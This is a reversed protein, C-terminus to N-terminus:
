AAQRGETATAFAINQYHMLGDVKEKAIGQKAVLNGFTTLSVPASGQEHVWRSYDAHLKSAVITTGAETRTRATIYRALRQEDTEPTEPQDIATVPESAAPRQRAPPTSTLLSAFFLGLGGVLELLAAFGINIIRRVTTTDVGTLAAIAAVQPDAIGEWDLGSASALNSQVADRRTELREREQAQALEQSLTALEACLEVSRKSVIDKCSRTADILTRTDGGARMPTQKRGDIAATIEAASRKTPIAALRKTIDTLESKLATTREVAAGRTGAVTARNLESFALGGIFSYTTLLPWVLLGFALAILRRQQWAKYLV